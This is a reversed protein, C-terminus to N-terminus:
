DVQSVFLKNAQDRTAAGFSFAGASKYLPHEKGFTTRTTMNRATVSRPTHESAHLECCCLAAFRYRGACPQWLM